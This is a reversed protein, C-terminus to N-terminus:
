TYLCILRTIGILAFIFLLFGAQKAGQNKKEEGIGFLLGGLFFVCAMFIFTGADTKLFM